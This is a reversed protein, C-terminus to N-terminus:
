NRTEWIDSYQVIKTIELLPNRFKNGIYKWYRSGSIEYQLIEKGSIGYKCYNNCYIELSINIEPPKTVVKSHGNLPRVHIHIWTRVSCDCNHIIKLM